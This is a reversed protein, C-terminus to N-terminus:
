VQLTAPQGRRSKHEDAEWLQSNRRPTGSWSDVEQLLKRETQELIQAWSLIGPSKSEMMRKVESNLIGSNLPRSLYGEADMQLGEVRNWGRRLHDKPPVDIVLIPISATSEEERLEKHLNFSEGRPEFFGLLILDPQEDEAKRLVAVPTSAHSIDFEKRLLKGVKKLFEPDTDAVLVRKM